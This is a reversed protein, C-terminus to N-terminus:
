QYPSRGSNECNSIEIDGDSNFVGSVYDEALGCDVKDLSFDPHSRPGAYIVDKEGSGFLTDAGFGGYLWDNGTGGVIYDNGSFLYSDGGRIDSMETLTDDGSGGYYKDNGRGGNLYDNNRGGILTDDGDDGYVVLANHDDGSDSFGDLEAITIYDNGAGGHIIVGPINNSLIIDNEPTGYCRTDRPCQIFAGFSTQYSVSYFMVISLSTLVIITAKSINNKNHM